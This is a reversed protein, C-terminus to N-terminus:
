SELQERTNPLVLTIVTAVFVTATLLYFVAGLGYEDAVIGGIIPLTMAFGSQVGFLVSIASGQMAPPSLDMSWSQIVPRASFLFIGLVSVIGIFAYRDDVMTLAAVAATTGMLSILAVPQRGIKDSLLGSALAGAIGGGQLVAMTFGTTTAGANLVDVLYLPIFVLLGNQTMSRFGAMVCLGIIAPDRLLVGLGKLYAKSKTETGNKQVKVGTDTRALVAFLLGAMVLVPLASLSAVNQWTFHVLLYGAAMPALIDGVSAGLSHIALAFGRGGLYLQSLYSIAAPHWLNNTMGMFAVAAMLWILHPAYGVAVLSAAGILLSTVQIRVRRGGIDVVSGSGATALFFFAHYTAVLSGAEAYSLQLDKAIFPLLIYLTGIVWHTGGHGMAVFFAPVHRKWGSGINNQPPAVM